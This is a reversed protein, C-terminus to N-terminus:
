MKPATAAFSPRQKLGDLYATLWPRQKLLEAGEPGAGLYHILPTANADAYSWSDSGLFGAKTIGRELGDLAGPLNEIAEAMRATDPERQFLRPAMLELVYQRIILPDLVSNEYSIWQEVEARAVPDTPFIAPGDFADNLYGAIARSEFVKIDGHRLAPIKGLPHIAAIKPDHPPLHLHAYPVGKEEAALRVAWVFNSFDAGLIEVGTM